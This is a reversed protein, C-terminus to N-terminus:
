SFLVSILVRLLDGVFISKAEDEINFASVSIEMNELNQDDNENEVDNYQTDVINELGNQSSSEEFYNGNIQQNQGVIELERNSNIEQNNSLDYYQNIKYREDDLYLDILYDDSKIEKEELFQEDDFHEFGSLNEGSKMEKEDLIEILEDSIDIENDEEISPENYVDTNMFGEELNQHKFSQDTEEVNESSIAEESFDLDVLEYGQLQQMNYFGKIDEVEEEGELTDFSDSEKLLEFTEPELDEKNSSVEDDNVVVKYAHEIGGDVEVFVPVYYSVIKYHEALV